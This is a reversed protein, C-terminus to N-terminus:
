ADLFTEYAASRRGDAGIAYARLFVRTGAVIPSWPTLTAPSTPPTGTDGLVTGIHRLPIGRSSYRTISQAASAFVLLAGGDTAAWPDTNDFAVDIDGANYTFVPEDLTFQAPGNLIPAADIPALGAYFRPQNVRNYMGLGGIDVADGFGNVQPNALAYANWALREGDTLVQTWRNTSNTMAVRAATQAGTSPNNPITRGRFYQGGRNHSAVIGQLRGSMDALIPKIKM